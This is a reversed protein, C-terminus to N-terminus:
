PARTRPRLAVAAPPARYPNFCATKPPHRLPPAVWRIPAAGGGGAGGISPPPPAPHSCMAKAGGAGGLRRWRGLHRLIRRFGDRLGGFISFRSSAPVDGSQEGVR